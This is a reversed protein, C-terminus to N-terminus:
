EKIKLSFEMVSMRKKKEMVFNEQIYKVLQIELARRLGNHMVLEDWDRYM